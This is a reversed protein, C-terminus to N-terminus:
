KEIMLPCNTLGCNTNKNEGMFRNNLACQNWNQKPYGIHKGHHKCKKSFRKHKSELDEFEMRLSSITMSKKDSGMIIEGM